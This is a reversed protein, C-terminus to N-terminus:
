NLDDNVVPDPEVEASEKAKKSAKPHRAAVATLDSYQDFDDGPIHGLLEQLINEVTIIGVFEEFSNVVVFLAHNTVFFAHLAESLSDHQHVYYVTSNMLDRVHGKSHLDLKHFELSGVIPGKKGERVLVLSQGSQHLEDILIPGVTDDALITKIGKRPTVIDSVKYDAFELARKAIGLEENTLRNDPQFQQQEILKILDTREFLGTHQVVKYRKEVADAGRSLIPHLWNLLWTIVPTVIRTLRAGFSSVRSAPLWSFAIWLIPGVIVLSVWVPLIRALLILSGGSLLGIILWLLSRLSNGYSVARYIASAFPDDQEAMRKLELVPLSYYTKRVVVVGLALALLILAFLLNM